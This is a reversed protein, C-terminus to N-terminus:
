ASDMWNCSSRTGFITKNDIHALRHSSFTMWSLSSICSLPFVFSESGIPLGIGYGRPDLLGGLPTLLCNRQSYYENLTSELIFAYNGDLARVIGDETKNVFLSKNANMFEWMRQYTPIDSHQMTCFFFSLFSMQFVKGSVLPLKQLQVSASGTKTKSVAM